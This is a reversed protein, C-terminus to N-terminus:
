FCRKYDYEFMLIKGAFSSTMSDRAYGSASECATLHGFGFCIQCGDPNTQSLDFTGYRCQDCKLGQVNTKCFCRGTTQNCIPTISGLTSCSCAIPILLVFKVLLM